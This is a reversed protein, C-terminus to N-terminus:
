ALDIESGSRPIFPGNAGGGARKGSATSQGGPSTQAFSANPLTTAAAFLLLVVASVLTKM